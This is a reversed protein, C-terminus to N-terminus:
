GIRLLVEAVVRDCRTQPCAFAEAAPARERALGENVAIRTLWSAFAGQGDFQRLNAYAKLYARQVLDEAERDNRLIARAACYLREHHRRMLLEFLATQGAVVQAVIHEDSLNSWRELVAGNVIYM